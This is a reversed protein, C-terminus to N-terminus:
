SLITLIGFHWIQPYYTRFETLLFCSLYFHFKRQAGGWRWGEDQKERSAVIMMFKRNKYVGLYIHIWLLTVNQTNLYDM